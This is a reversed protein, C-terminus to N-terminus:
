AEVWEEWEHVKDIDPVLLLDAKPLKPGLWWQKAEVNWFAYHGYGSDNYVKYIGTRSPIAKEALYKTM